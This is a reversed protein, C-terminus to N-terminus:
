MTLMVSTLLYPMELVFIHVWLKVGHLEFWRSNWSKWGGGQKSMQGMMKPTSTPLEGLDVGAAKASTHIRFVEFSSTVAQSQIALSQRRKSQKRELKQAEPQAAEKTLRELEEAAELGGKIM